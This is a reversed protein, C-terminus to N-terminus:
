WGGEGKCCGLGFGRKPGLFLNSLAVADCLSRLLFSTARCHQSQQGNWHSIMRAWVHVTTHMLSFASREPSVRKQWPRVITVSEEFQEDFIYKCAVNCMLHDAEHMLRPDVEVIKKAFKIAEVLDRKCGEGKLHRYSLHYYALPHGKAAAKRLWRVSDYDSQAIRLLKVWMSTKALVTSHGRTGKRPTRKRRGSAVSASSNCLTCRGRM